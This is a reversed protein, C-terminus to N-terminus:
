GPLSLRRLEAVLHRRFADLDMASIGTPLKADPAIRLGDLLWALTAPSAGGDKREADALLQKLDLGTALIARLDVLDRIEARGVLACIKNAGIERLSHIRIGRIDEHSDVDPARDVVLDVMVSERGRRVLLRRFEPHTRTSEVSAGLSEAARHLSRVGDEIEVPPKTFLDLDDSTRHHLHFGILAGGGTLVFRKEIAFFAGLLASQLDTLGHSSDM